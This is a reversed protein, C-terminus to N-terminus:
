ATHVEIEIKIQNAELNTDISLFKYFHLELQQKVNATEVAAFTVSLCIQNLIWPEYNTNLITRM